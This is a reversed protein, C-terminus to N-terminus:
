VHGSNELLDGTCLVENADMSKGQLSVRSVSIWEDSCAVRVGAGDFNGVTGPITQARCRTRSASVIGFEVRGKLTRPHGWPSLFPSFDCARIFNIVQQAPLSWIIRGHQPVERDLWRRQTLDQPIEPLPFHATLADLLQSVM